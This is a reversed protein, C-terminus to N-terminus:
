AAKGHCNKYKKGSGCPCPENRGVKAAKNRIPETKKDDSKSQEIAQEQQRRIEPQFENANPQYANTMHFVHSVYGPDAHEM